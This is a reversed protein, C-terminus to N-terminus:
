GCADGTCMTPVRNNKLTKWDPLTYQANRTGIALVPREKRRLEAEQYKSALKVQANTLLGSSYTDAM